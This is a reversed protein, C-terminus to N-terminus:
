PFCKNKLSYLNLQERYCKIFTEAKLLQLVIAHFSTNIITPGDGHYNGGLCINLQGADLSNKFHNLLNLYRLELSNPPFPINGAHINGWTFSWRFGPTEKNEPNYTLSSPNFNAGWVSAFAQRACVSAIINKRDPIKETFFGKSEHCNIILSQIKYFQCQELAFVGLNPQTPSAPPTTSGDGRPQTSSTPPPTTSDDGRLFKLLDCHVTTLILVCSYFFLLTKKLDLKM